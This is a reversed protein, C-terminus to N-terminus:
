AALTQQMSEIDSQGSAVLDLFSSDGFNVATMREDADPHSERLSPEHAIRNRLKAASLLKSLPQLGESDEGLLDDQQAVAEGIREPLGWEALIASGIQAQWGDLIDQFDPDDRLSPDNSLAHTLIYLRGIQHLLGALMAEDPQRGFARKAVVYCIAAVENSSRWVSELEHRIPELEQARRMQGIAYAAATGRVLNFGLRTVAGNINNISHGGPNMAASNAMGLLRASLVPESSIVAVIDKVSANADTLAAQLRGVVDPFAPLHLEEQGLQAALQQIFQFARSNQQTV